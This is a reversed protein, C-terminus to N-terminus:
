VPEKISTLLLWHTQVYGEIVADAGPPNEAWEDYTLAWSNDTVIVSTFGYTAPFKAVQALSNRTADDVNAEPRARYIATKSVIGDVQKSFDISNVFATRQLLNIAM